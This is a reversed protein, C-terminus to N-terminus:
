HLTRLLRSFEKWATKLLFFLCASLQGLYRGANMLTPSNPMFRREIFMNYFEITTKAIDAKPDYQGDIEAITGAVRLLMDQPEEMVEGKDNKILYRKSLVTMANESIDPKRLNEKKLM